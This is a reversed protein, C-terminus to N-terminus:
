SYGEALPLAAGAATFYLGTATCATVTACSVGTLESGQAGPPTPTSQVAWSSGNWREALTAYASESNAASYGVATCVTMSACSVASLETDHAGTPNPTSQVAWGSGNWREALTAQVGASTTSTGVATCATASSCSVGTLQSGQAGTANPTSQRAWSSGNWREALPVDVGSSNHFDGVATCATASTCSMGFLEGNPAQPVPVRQQVWGAAVAVPATALAVLTVALGAIRGWSLHRQTHM